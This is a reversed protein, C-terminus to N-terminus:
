QAGQSRLRELERRLQEAEEEARQRAEEARERADGEQEPTLLLQGDPTQAQLLQGRVVLYLGLVESWLRGQEDFDVCIPRDVLPPGAVLEIEYGAPVRIRPEVAAKDPAAAIAALLFLFTAPM